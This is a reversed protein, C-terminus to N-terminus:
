RERTLGIRTWDFTDGPDTRRTPAYEEHGIIHTRDNTIGPHRRRIDRLLVKLSAYQADTFGIAEPSLKTFEEYKEPKMFIAMDRPSGVALIEIGISFDNMQNTRPPGAPATGRGAHYAARKEDVLQLINGQRDILYHASVGANEYIAVIREPDFPNLPSVILDSSFHLMVTDLTATAARDRSLTFSVPRVWAPKGAGIRLVHPQAPNGPVPSIHSLLLDSVTGSILTVKASTELDKATHYPAVIRCAREPELRTDDPLLEVGKLKDTRLASRLAGGTTEIVALRQDPWLYLDAVGDRTLPRGPEGRLADTRLLCADAGSEGILIRAVREHLRPYPDTTWKDDTWAVQPSTFRPPAVAASRNWRQSGAARSLILWGTRKPARIRQGDVTLVPTGSAGASLAKLDVALRTVEQTSITAMGPSTIEGNATGAVPYKATGAIRLWRDGGKAPTRAAVSERTVSQPRPHAAFWAFLRGFNDGIMKSGHGYGTEERYEHAIGLRKLEAAAERSNEVPVIEDGADHIIYPALHRANRLLDLPAWGAMPAISAFLGPNRLAIWWTGWGGMSHGMLHVRDPDVPLRRESRRSWM